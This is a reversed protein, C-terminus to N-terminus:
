KGRIKKEKSLLEWRNQLKIKKEVKFSHFVPPVKKKLKVRWNQVRRKLYSFAPNLVRGSSIGANKSPICKMWCRM